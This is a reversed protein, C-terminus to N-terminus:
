NRLNYYRRLYKDDREDLEQAVFYHIFKRVNFFEGVFDIENRCEFPCVFVSKQLPYIGMEKIKQTLARRSKKFREPIDFAIVRWNGDWKKPRKIKIEDIKYKLVEKKGKETIEMVMEDGKEYLEILKNKHLNKLTRSVKYKERSNKVGFLTLVQLLNPLAFSAVVLGGLALGKLIEKALEGRAECERLSKIEQNKQKMKKNM